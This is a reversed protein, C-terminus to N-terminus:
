WDFAVLRGQEDIGTNGYGLDLSSMKTFRPMRVLKLEIYEDILRAPALRYYPQVKWGNVTWQQAAKFGTHRLARPPSRRHAKKIVCDGLRYAKTWFGEGIKEAQPYVRRVDGDLVWASNGRLSLKNLIDTPKKM